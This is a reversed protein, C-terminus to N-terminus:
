WHSATTLQSRVPLQWSDSRAGLFIACRTRSSAFVPVRVGDRRRAGARRASGDAAAGGDRWVAARLAFAPMPLVAPRRLARGLSRAFEANIVPEPASGNFPGSAAADVILWRVLEIWDSRHIWPMYQRGSGIPGGVGLKFPLLMQALAGGEPHLVLGTRVIRSALSTTSASSPRASGNSAFARSFITVPRRQRPSSRTAARGTSLGRRRASSSAHRTTAQGIAAVLSRTAAIRSALIARKRKDSWRRDAIGEGALNISRM